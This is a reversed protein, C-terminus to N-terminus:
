NNDFHKAALGSISVFLGSGMILIIVGSAGLSQLIAFLSGASVVGISSHVGAAISGAAIGAAYAM